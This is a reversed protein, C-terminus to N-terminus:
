NNSILTQIESLSATRSLAMEFVYGQRKQLAFRAILSNGNECSRRKHATKGDVESYEFVDKARPRKNVCRDAVPRSLLVGRRSCASQREEGLTLVHHSAAGKLFRGVHEVEVARTSQISMAEGYEMQPCPSSGSGKL